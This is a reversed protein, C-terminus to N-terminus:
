IEEEYARRRAPDALARQHPLVMRSLISWRSPLVALLRALLGIPAPEYLDYRRSSMARHVRSAVDESSPRRILGHSTGAALETDVVTPLVISVTVGSGQLEAEVACCYGYVAHKTATYTAEGRPHLKSAAPTVTVIQGQRRPRMMEAALKMGHIVGLLNVQMRRRASAEPEAQFPGVWMVGANDVLVDIPGFAATVARMFDRFSLEDSVDLPHGMAGAGLEGAAATASQADLDGLGVLAGGNAPECAIAAGIGRGAGTVAVVPGRIWRQNM